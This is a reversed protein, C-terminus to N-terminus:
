ASGTWEMKENRVWGGSAYTGGDVHITIGTLYASMDSALFVTPGAYDDEVGERLAPISRARGPRGPTTVGIGTTGPTPTADPAITNFRIGHHGAELAMTRAFNEMASKCSAYVAFGPAARYAEISTVNIISGAIGLRVMEDVVTKTCYYTTKLNIRVLADWANESEEVFDKRFGGGVNNVLCDVRGYRDVTAKVMGKVQDFDRVDVTLALASGGAAEIDAATEKAADGDKDAIVVGAGFAALGRACGRGIGMAGGTVIAARGDLSALSKDLAM